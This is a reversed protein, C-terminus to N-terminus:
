ETPVLNAEQGTGVPVTAQTAGPAQPPQRVGGASQGNPVGNRNEKLFAPVPILRDIDDYNFNRLMHKMFVGKAKLIEIYYSKLEEPMGQASLSQIIQADGAYMRELTGSLLMDNQKEMEKNISASAPRILLGLKGSKISSLAAQLADANNGFQRLKGGIGFHAYIQTLKAGARTHANRMDSTRLSTRNNQMQMAAFTGQASYIGRKANVIGGGAGGQAAAVGSRERSYGVTLTESETNTAYPNSTDLREIEDKDAPVMVGPYFTLVSNLKSNKNIRFATTNNLTGADTRQNHIISVEDQYGELMEALGYGLYQDDDYALKADEYTCINKPYYNYFRWM